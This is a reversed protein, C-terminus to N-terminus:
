RKRHEMITHLAFFSPWPPTDRSRMVIVKFTPRAGIVRRLRLDAGAGRRRVERGIGQRAGRRRGVLVGLGMMPDRARIINFGAGVVWEVEQRAEEEDGQHGLHSHDRPTNLRRYLHYVPHHPHQTSSHSPQLHSQSDM